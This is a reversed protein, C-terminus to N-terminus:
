SKNAIEQHALNLFSFQPLSLQHQAKTKLKEIPTLTKGALCKGAYLYSFKEREVVLVILPAVRGLPFINEVGFSVKEDSLSL